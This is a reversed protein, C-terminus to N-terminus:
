VDESEKETKVRIHHEKLLSAFVGDGDTLTSTFTGDYVNGSGCSPSNSKLIAETCGFVEVVSYAKHAGERFTKTVDKGDRTFVKGDRQEAAPRPVPLGALVEPCVAVAKGSKILAKIGACEASTGNWRCKEGALCASVVIM